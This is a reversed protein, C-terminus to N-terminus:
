RTGRHREVYIGLRLLTEVSERVLGLATNCFHCLLGRVRGTAHDHDVHTYRGPQLAEECGLCKRNQAQLMANFAELTIGYKKRLLARRANEPKAYRRATAQRRKQRTEASPAAELGLARREKKRERDRRRREDATLM